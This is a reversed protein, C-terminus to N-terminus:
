QANRLPLLRLMRGYLYGTTGSLLDFTKVIFFREEDRVGCIWIAIYYSLCIAAAVLGLSGLGRASITQALLFAVGACSLIPVVLDKSAAYLVRVLNSGCEVAATQMIAVTAFTFAALAAWGTGIVGMRPLLWITLGIEIVATIVLIFLLTNAEGRGWLVNMSPMAVIDILVVVTMLRMISVTAPDIHRLWAHLLDPAFALLVICVPIVLVLNWRTGLEIMDRGRVDQQRTSGSAAYFLVESAHWGIWSVAIPAKMGVYYPVVQAAGLMTGIILPATGWILTGMAGSLQSKLSFALRRRLSSWAPRLLRFRFAPELRGIILMGAVAGIASSVLQWTLIGVLGAHSKLVLVAGAGWLIAACGSIGSSMDFRRLGRLVSMSYMTMQGTLFTVGILAFAILGTRHNSVSLSMSSVIPIGLVAIGMAGFIGTLLYVNAGAAVYRIAEDDNSSDRAAIERSISWSLGFDLIVAGWGAVTVAVAWMGYAEAGLRRLFLPVLAIGVFGSVVFGAYNILGDRMLTIREGVELLGQDLAAPEGLLPSASSAALAPIGREELSNSLKM